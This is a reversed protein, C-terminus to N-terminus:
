EQEKDNKSSVYLTDGRQDIALLEFERLMDVFTSLPLSRDWNLHFRLPAVMTDTIIVRVNYYDAVDALISDIRANDYKLVTEEQQATERAVDAMLEKVSTDEAKRNQLSLSIWAAAAGCVVIVAGVAAAKRWGGNRHKGYKRHFIYQQGFNQWEKEVDTECGEDISNCIDVMLRYTKQLERDKELRSVQEITLGDPHELMNLLEETYNKKTM